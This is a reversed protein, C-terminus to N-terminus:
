STPRFYPFRAPSGVGLSRPARSEDTRPVALVPPALGGVALAGTRPAPPHRLESAEFTTGVAPARAVLVRYSQSLVTDTRDVVELTVLYSGARAYTHEATSGVSTTGDGFAWLVTYPPVGGSPSARVSIEGTSAGPGAAAVVSSKVAPGIGLDFIIGLTGNTSLSNGEGGLVQGDVVTLSGAMTLNAGPFPLAFQELLKGNTANLVVVTSKSPVYVMGNAYTIAGYEGGTSLGHGWVKSGNAPDLAYVYDSYYKGAVTTEVTADFLLGQGFAAPVYQQGASGPNFTWVPAWSPNTSVNARDLAYFTGDKNLAGVLPVGGSTNFLIASAGFDDDKDFVNPVQWVGVEKLTRANFAIISQVGTENTTHYNDNGTSIWILGTSPDVAPSSWIDGGLLGAPPVHFEGDITHPATLNVKLVRGGGAVLPQDDCSAIGIYLHNEYILASAWNYNGQKASGVYLDWEVSGNKPDLAYWYDGGGGVYLTNDYYTASSDIGGVGCYPLSTGLYVKWLIKGTTLRIAYEYGNWSGIYVVGNVVTPSARVSGNLTINWRVALQSINSPALTNEELNASTRQFNNLYDPWNVWKAPANALNALEPAAIAPTATLPSVTLVSGGSIPRDPPAASAGPLSGVVLGTSVLSLLVLLAFVPARLPPRESRTAPATPAASRPM